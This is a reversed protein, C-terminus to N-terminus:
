STFFIMIIKSKELNLFEYVSCKETNQINFHYFQETLIAM